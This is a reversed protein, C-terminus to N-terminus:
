NEPSRDADTGEGDLITFDIPLLDRDVAVFTDDRIEITLSPNISYLDQCYNAALRDSKLVM